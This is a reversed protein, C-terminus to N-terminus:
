SLTILLSYFEVRFSRLHGIQYCAFTVHIGVIIQFFDSMHHSAISDSRVFSVLFHYM